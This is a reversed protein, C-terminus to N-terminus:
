DEAANIEEVIEDGNESCVIHSIENELYPHMMQVNSCGCDCFECEKIWDEWNEDLLKLFSEPSGRRKYRDLYEIKNEQTDRPYILYFFLCNDLLAERVERHSSVLIFKCKGINEKIHAIYNNPFDPNRTKTDGDRLWSFNTSDSDLVDENNSFFETKGTGPFASIIRTRM